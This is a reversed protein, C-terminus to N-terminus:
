VRVEASSESAANPTLWTAVGRPLLVAFTELSLFPGVSFKWLRRATTERELDRKLSRALYAHPSNNTIGSAALATFGGTVQQEAM